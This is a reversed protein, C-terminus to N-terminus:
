FKNEKLFNIVELEEEFESQFLSPFDTTINDPTDIRHNRDTWNIIAVECGDNASISYVDNGMMEILIKM